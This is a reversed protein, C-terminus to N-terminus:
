EDWIFATASAGINDNVYLDDYTETWSFFIIDKGTIDYEDYTKNM